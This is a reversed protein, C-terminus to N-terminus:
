FPNPTNKKVDEQLKPRITDSDSVGAVASAATEAARYNMLTALRRTRAGGEILRGTEVLRKGLKSASNHILM